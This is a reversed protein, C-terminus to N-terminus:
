IFTAVDSEASVTYMCASTISGGLAAASIKILTNTPIEIGALPNENSAAHEVHEEDDSLQIPGNKAQPEKIARLLATVLAGNM